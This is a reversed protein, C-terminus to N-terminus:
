QRRVIRPVVTSATFQPNVGPETIRVPPGTYVKGSGQARVRTLIEHWIMFTMSYPKFVPVSRGLSPNPVPTAGLRIGPVFTSACM